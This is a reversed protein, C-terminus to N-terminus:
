TPIPDTRPEVPTLRATQIAFESERPCKITSISISQDWSLWRCVKSEYIVRDGEQLDELPKVAFAKAVEDDRTASPTPASTTAPTRPATTSVLPTKTATPEDDSALQDIAIAGLVLIPLIAVMMVPHRVASGTAKHRSKPVSSAM